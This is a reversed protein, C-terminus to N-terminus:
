KGAQAAIMKQQLMVKYYQQRSVEEPSPGLRENLIENDTLKVALALKIRAHMMRVQAEEFERVVQEYLPNLLNEKAIQLMLGVDSDTLETM